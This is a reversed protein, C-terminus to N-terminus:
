VNEKDEFTYENENQWQVLVNDMNLPKATIPNGNEDLNSVISEKIIEFQHDEKKTSSFIKNIVDFPNSADESDIQDIYRDLADMLLLKIVRKRDADMKIEEDFTSTAHLDFHEDGITIEYTKWDQSLANNMLKRMYIISTTLEGLAILYDRQDM